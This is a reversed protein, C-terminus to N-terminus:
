KSKFRVEGQQIRMSAFFKEDCIVFGEVFINATEVTAYFGM